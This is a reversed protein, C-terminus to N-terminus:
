NDIRRHGPLGGRYLAHGYGHLVFGKRRHGAKHATFVTGGLLDAQRGRILHVTQLFLIGGHPRIGYVGHCRFLLPPLGDPDAAHLDKVALLGDRPQIKQGAFQAARRFLDGHRRVAKKGAAAPAAGRGMGAGKRFPPHQGLDHDGFFDGYMEALRAGIHPIDAYTKLIIDGVHRGAFDVWGPRLLRQAGIDQRLDAQREVPDPRLPVGAPPEAEVDGSARAVVLRIHAPAGDKRHHLPQGGLQEVGIHAAGAVRLRIKGFVAVALGDGTGAHLLPTGHVTGIGPHVSQLDQAVVVAAPDVEDSGVVNRANRLTVGAGRKPATGGARRDTRDLTLQGPDALIIGREAFGGDGPSKIGRRFIGNFGEL